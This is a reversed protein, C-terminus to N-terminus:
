HQYSQIFQFLFWVIFNFLAIPNINFPNLKNQNHIKNYKLHSRAPFLLRFNKTFSILEIFNAEQKKNNVKSKGHKSYVEFVHVTVIYCPAFQIRPYCKKEAEFHKWIPCGTGFNHRFFTRNRVAIWGESFLKIVLLSTVRNLSFM